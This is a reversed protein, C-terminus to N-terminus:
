RTYKKITQNISSTIISRTKNIIALKARRVFPRPKFGPGVSRKWRLHKKTGREIFWLRYGLLRPSGTVVGTSNVTEYTVSQWNTISRGYRKNQKQQYRSRLKDQGTTYSPLINAMRASTELSRESARSIANMARVSADDKIELSLGHLLDGIEDINSEIPM